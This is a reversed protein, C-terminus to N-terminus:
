HLSPLLSIPGPVSEPRGFLYGQAQDWGQAHLTRAQEITEVGEAVGVLHLGRALGAVGSALANATSDDETLHSVFSADLKLGTVPLDRLLSISSFGTGFDDVQVGVGLDRLAVLDSRTTDLLSLVATETVEVVIRTPDVGYRTVTEVLYALWDRASLEAASFNVNIPGPLAPQAALRACVQEFAQRGIEVILGCDESVELFEAPGLRGRVPHQWRVLAEHGVVACDDLRVIPQYHVVFEHAALGRRLDDELALRAVARAHMAEDFFQWRARGAHKARFLASDSDRLLSESTSTSHSVAIGMSATPVIRHGHVVLETAIAGSLREAVREVDQPGQVDPVVVIFEDGGFRGVRDVPRLVSSIRDAVAALVEDGAAHGLSDNVLKFNDLDIFLVGVGDGSRQAARLDVGLMDLIWVRNRLGTLGDHFAQYSLQEQAAREATVDLVQVLFTRMVGCDDGVMVAAVRAWLTHGDARLLPLQGEYKEADGHALSDRVEDVLGFHAPDVVDDVRHGLLWEEDRLLMQALAPNVVKFAGHIDTLAMGIAASRMAAHLLAESEALAARATVEGEIDTWSGMSAVVAGTADIVPRVMAEIWHYGADKTVIRIRMSGAEGTLVAARVRRVVEGDDPHVLDRIPRGLVDAPSWGVLATVSESIWTFLGENSCRWVVGTINKELLRYAEELETGAGTTLRGAAVEPQGVVPALEDDVAPLAGHPGRLAAAEGVEDSRSLLRIPQDSPAGM